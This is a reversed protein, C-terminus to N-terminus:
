PLSSYQGVVLLNERENYLLIGFMREWQLIFFARIKTDIQGCDGSQKWACAITVFFLFLGRLFLACNDSFINMYKKDAKTPKFEGEAYDYYLAAHVFKDLLFSLITQSALELKLIVPSNFVFRNMTKIRILM